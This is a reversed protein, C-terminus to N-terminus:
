GGVLAILRVFSIVPDDSLDLVEDLSEIQRDGVLLVFGNRDFAAEAVEAQREWDVPRGEHAAVLPMGVDTRAAEERVRLRVLERATLMAPLVELSTTALARGTATEDQLTM